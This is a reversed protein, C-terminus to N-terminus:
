LPSVLYGVLRDLVRRAQQANVKQLDIEGPNAIAKRVADPTIQNFLVRHIPQDGNELVSAIHQAIAEGERDPDTAIFVSKAGLAGKKLAIIIDEKGEITVYEPEFDAKLDVGLRKPPLDLIHGVSATVVYGQGLYGALTRAKAPSEVIVLNAGKASKIVMPKAAATKGAPKAAVKKTATKVTTKATSKVSASKRVATKKTAKRPKPTTKKKTTKPM